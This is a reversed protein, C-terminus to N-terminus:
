DELNYREILEQIDSEELYRDIAEGVVKNMSSAKVGALRKLLNYVDESVTIKLQKQDAKRANM